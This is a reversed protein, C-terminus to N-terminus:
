DKKRVGTNKFGQLRLIVEEESETGMLSDSNKRLVMFHGVWQRPNAPDKPLLEFSSLFPFVLSLDFPDTGVLDTQKPLSQDTLEIFPPYKVYKWGNDEGFQQRHFLRLYGKGDGAHIEVLVFEFLLLGYKAVPDGMIVEGGIIRPKVTIQNPDVPLKIKTEEWFASETLLERAELSFHRYWKQWEGVDCDRVGVRTGAYIEDGIAWTPTSAILVLFFLCARASQM